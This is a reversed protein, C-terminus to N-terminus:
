TRNHDIPLPRTIHGDGGSLQAMERLASLKPILESDSFFGSPM